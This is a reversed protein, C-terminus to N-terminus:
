RHMPNAAGTEFDIRTDPTLQGLKWTVKETDPTLEALEVEKLIRLSPIEVEVPVMAEMGYVLSFPTAGTSTRSITKYAMLAFPLKNHWDKYTETMKELINKINKKSAEVVGNMQPRYLVSGHHKVKFQNCLKTM